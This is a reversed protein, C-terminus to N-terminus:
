RIDSRRPMVGRRFVLALLVLLPIVLWIGTDVWQKGLQQTREVQTHRMPDHQLLYKIDQGNTTLTTYVGQGARALKMLEDVALQSMLLKGNHQQSFGSIQDPIPAGIRTGVGLVSTKFGQTVLDSATKLDRATPANATILIIHGRQVGGQQMMQSARVLAASIDNGTTPMIQPSLEPLLNSITEPDYTLPSVVYPEETFALLGLDVEGLKNLLDHIKFKARTARNPKSDQALMAPSMDVAIVVARSQKLVPLPRTVWTPGALAILSLTWATALVFFPWRAKNAAKHPTLYPLLHPDVLTHWESYRQTKKYLFYCLCLSVPLLTLWSPRLFHFNHWASLM